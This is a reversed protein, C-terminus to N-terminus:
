EVGWVLAALRREHVRSSRFSIRVKEQRLSSFAIATELTRPYVVRKKTKKNKSSLIRALKGYKKLKIDNYPSKEASIVIDSMTKVVELFNEGVATENSLMVADANDIVANTVDSIEARTPRNNKIMSAMMQTAVIVPKKKKICKAIIDKQFVGVKEQPMEIALDGRAVMIGDSHEIIEDINNMAKRREVKSIIWPVSNRVNSQKKGPLNITKNMKHEVIRKLNVLDKGDAVFSVAIFDVDQTLIFELDLLDKITLFGMHRSISPINVGKHPKVIGGVLVSAVCGMRIRRDVVLQIMGDEIFVKDGKGLHEYFDNWDLAVEKKYKHNHPSRNDTLFVKDGEKLTVDRLNAVRVRPGQIDAIIGIKKRMQKEATRINQITKRHWDHDGHSFNLRCVNMGEKMLKKLNEVSESVPGITAVIKTKKM